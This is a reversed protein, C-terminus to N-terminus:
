FPVADDLQQEQEGHQPGPTASMGAAGTRPTKSRGIQSLRCHWSMVSLGHRKTGDAATWDDLSLRGEIYARAGKVLKNAVAIAKEDFCTVGVWQVDDGDGVRARFRLYPKGTKSTRAEANAALSGFFAVELGSM